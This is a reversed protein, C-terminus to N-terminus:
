TLKIKLNKKTFLKFKIKFFFFQLTGYGGWFEHQHQLMFSDGCLQQFRLEKELSDLFSLTRQQSCLLWFPKEVPIPIEGQRSTMGAETRTLFLM